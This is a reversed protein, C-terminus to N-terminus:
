VLVPFLTKLGYEKEIKRKTKILEEFDDLNKGSVAFLYETDRNYKRIEHGPSYKYLEVPKKGCYDIECGRKLMMYGAKIDREDEIFCLVKGQVGVPLGGPGKIREKFIYAYNDLFEIGIEEEFNELDVEGGRRVLAEGIIENVRQSPYPFEKTIRKASVRFKKGSYIEEAIKKIKEIDQDVKIAPSYSAIGFINKLDCKRETLLIIRGKSCIIDDVKLYERINRILIKEWRKRTQRSKIGIESYRVLISNHRM